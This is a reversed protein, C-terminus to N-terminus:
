PQPRKSLTPMAETLTCVKVPRQCALPHRTQKACWDVIVFIVIHTARMSEVTANALHVERFTKWSVFGLRFGGGGGGRVKSAKTKKVRFVGAGKGSAKGLGIGSEEEDEHGFSLVPKAGKEVKGKAKKRMKKPRQGEGEAAAAPPPPPPATGVSADSVNGADEDSSEATKSKSVPRRRIDKKRAKFM